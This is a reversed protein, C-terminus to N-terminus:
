LVNDIANYHQKKDENFRLDDFERYLPVRRKMQYRSFSILTNQAGIWLIERLNRACKSTWFTSLSVLLISLRKLDSPLM